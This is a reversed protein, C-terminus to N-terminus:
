RQWRYLRVLVQVLTGALTSRSGLAAAALLLVGIRKQGRKFAMVADLLISAISVTRIRPNNLATAVTNACMRSVPAAVPSVTTGADALRGGGLPM